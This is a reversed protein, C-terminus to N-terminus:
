KKSRFVWSNYTFYELLSKDKIYEIYELYEKENNIYPVESPEYWVGAPICETTFGTRILLKDIDAGFDTFVLAGKERLPDGHYVPPYRLIEKGGSVVIRRITPRGEHFPITFIHFGGPRLVRYIEQFAEEPQRIHEFVDQTIVLDFTDPPFLLHQLDQCLIGRPDKEGVPITDFFESCVYHPLDYLADHISGSAQAEYISLHSFSGAATRLFAKKRPLFTDLIVRALDSQRHSVGCSPCISERRTYGVTNTFESTSGCIFCKMTSTNGQM